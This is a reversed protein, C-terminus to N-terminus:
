GSTPMTPVFLRPVWPLDIFLLMTMVATCLAVAAMLTRERYLREPSQAASDPQFAMAFYIAMVLSVLPFALIWEIRYRMVFAGLFLMAISGYFVISVLLSRESYYHFSKRYAAIWPQSGSERFEAFRKITMFYCGIMWYSALLSAPPLKQAGTLYWGAAMRLPNNVAETLVDMYPIDKSRVPPINYVCGMIWLAALALSFETSERMSLAMGAVMLAIWQLYALPVSIQNMAAPRHKKTPHLRDWPADLVENLVYNSSTVLCLALIGLLLDVPHLNRLLTRDGYLAILIGPLIFVNKCWHDVRALRFHRRWLTAGSAPPAAVNTHM